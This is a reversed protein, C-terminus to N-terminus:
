IEEEDEEEEEVAVDGHRPLVVEVKGQRRKRKGSLNKVMGRLEAFAEVPQDPSIVVAGIGANWLNALEANTIVSPLVVVLPKNVLGGFRQCVLLYEVTIFSEGDGSVFVGDIDLENIVRVLGQDMSPEIMLFRGIGDEGLAAVSTRMDFVVFDCGLATLEGVKEESARQVVVGVPIDGMSEIVQKLSGASLDQEWVLGADIDSSAVIGADVVDKGALRAVLLISSKESKSATVHFGIPAVLAKPLDNLRDVFKSM